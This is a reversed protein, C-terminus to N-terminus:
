FNSKARAYKEKKQANYRDKNKEWYQRRKLLEKDRNRHYYALTRSNSCLKCTRSVRKGVWTNEETYEHGQPCHTKTINLAPITKGRLTNERHTVIQIHDPNVCHRNPEPAGRLDCIHDCEKDPPIQGFTWQYMIRHAAAWKGNLHFRPYGNKTKSATWLWCDTQPDIQIKAFFRNYADM